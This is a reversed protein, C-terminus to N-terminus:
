QGFVTYDDEFDPLPCTKSDQATWKLKDTRLEELAVRHHRQTPLAGDKKPTFEPDLGAAPKAGRILQNTRKMIIQALQFRSGVKDQHEEITYVNKALM